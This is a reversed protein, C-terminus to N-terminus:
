QLEQLTSFAMHLANVYLKTKLAFHNLGSSVRLMELKVYAWLAAFVHNTQTVVTHTPSKELSAHQKLSKHSPEVNWRTRYITTIQEYTLTLDSTVLYCVGTSGDENTFVHKALLLPFDVGELYVVPVTGAELALAEVAVSAGRQKDPLSRAIKRNTKIPMIVDKKLDHKVFRMTEASAYWVDHLVYRFPIRNTVAQRLLDCYQENKSLPSRRKAKGDKKDISHETKAILAFGVPLSVGQSQYLATMFNIGKVTHGTTHDDHWCISDNEDTYPKEAISDDVILVGDDSQIQRVYPKVRYWLDAATCPPGALFRTIRDHSIRGGLLTALGTATTAGFSSILSDSYLDLFATNDM